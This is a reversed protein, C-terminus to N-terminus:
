LFKQQPSVEIQLLVCWTSKFLDWKTCDNIKNKMAIMILLYFNDAPSKIKGNEKNKLVKNWLKNVVEAKPLFSVRCELM